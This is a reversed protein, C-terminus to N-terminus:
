CFVQEFVESRFRTAFAYSVTSFHPVKTTLDFGLFWRYAVNVHTEEMTIRLSPLGFLDQIFVM